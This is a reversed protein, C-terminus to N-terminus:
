HTQVAPVSRQGHHFDAHYGQGPEESLDLGILLVFGLPVLLLLKAPFRFQPLGPPMFDQFGKTKM